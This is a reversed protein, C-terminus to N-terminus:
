NSLKQEISKIASIEFKLFSREDPTGVNGTEIIVTEDKIKHVKGVIGGITTIKDGPKMANIQNRLEKEKKRQPRIMIFYMFLLILVFPMFSVLNAMIPSVEGQAGQTVAGATGEAFAVVNLLNM